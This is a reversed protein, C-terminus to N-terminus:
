RDGFRWFVTKYTRSFKISIVGNNCAKLQQSPNTRALYVLKLLRATFAQPKSSRKIQFKVLDGLAHNGM